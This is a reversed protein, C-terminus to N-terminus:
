WYKKSNKFTNESNKRNKRIKEIKGFKKQKEQNEFKKRQKESNKLTNELNKLTNKWIKEFKEQTKQFFLIKGFKKQKESNKRNKRIKGSFIVPDQIRPDRKKGVITALRGPRTTFTLFRSKLFLQLSLMLGHQRPTFIEFRKAPHM